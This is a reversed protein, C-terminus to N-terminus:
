RVKQRILNEVLYDVDQKKTLYIYESWGLVQVSYCFTREKQLKYQEEFGRMKEKHEEKLEAIEKDHQDEIKRRKIDLEFLIKCDESMQKDTIDSPRGRENAISYKGSM